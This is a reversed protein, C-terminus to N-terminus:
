RLVQEQRGDIVLHNPDLQHIYAAIEATWAHPCQLENGTEWALITPDDSYTVQNRTNVRELVFRLTKKYDDILEPDTWFAERPKERFAAYEAVGGWWSWNDVLPIIVRVGKTRAVDLVMDLAEFGREDFEGPGFVHRPMDDPDDPKRVSLAYIRVVLGGMQRISDLADRVEYENSWRFPMAQAFRMDDEIYHLNPVNFSLFRFEDQGEFLRDGRATVFGPSPQAVLPPAQACSILLLAAAVVLTTVRWAARGTLGIM